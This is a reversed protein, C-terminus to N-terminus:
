RLYLKSSKAARIIWRTSSILAHMRQELAKLRDVESRLWLIKDSAADPWDCGHEEYPLGCAVGAMREREDQADMAGRQLRIELRQQELDIRLSEIEHLALAKRSEEGDIHDLALGLLNALTREHGALEFRGLLARAATIEDNTM